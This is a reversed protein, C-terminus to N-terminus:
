VRYLNKEIRQKLIMEIPNLDSSNPPANILVPIKNEMWDKTHKVTHPPANDQYFSVIMNETFPFLCKELIECIM